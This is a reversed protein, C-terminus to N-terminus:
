LFSPTGKWFHGTPGSKTEEWWRIDNESFYSIADERIGDWLNLEPKKLVFPYEKGNTFKGGGEARFFEPLLDEAWKKQDDRFSMLKEENGLTRLCIKINRDL